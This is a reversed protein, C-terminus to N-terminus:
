AEVEETPVTANSKYDYPHHHESYNEGFEPIRGLIPISFLETLDNENKIHTDQLFLFVLLVLALVMGMVIGVMGAKTYSPSYRTTPVKASDIVRASTGEILQSIEVPAVMAAANAIRAAEKPDDCIAHMYFIETGNMQEASIIGELEEATYEGDLAEALKDLVRDSKAISIYTNVLRQAASLDASSLNDLNEVGKTNNVYISISAQYMPTVFSITYFLSAFFAVMVFIVIVWWRRLCYMMLEMLNIEIEGTRMEMNEQM